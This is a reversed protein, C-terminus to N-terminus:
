DVLKLIMGRSYSVVYLEGASDQGFASVLGTVGTGGVDTTHELPAFAVVEGGGVPATGISFLRGGLDAYFYRGRYLSELATGRYVYGGTISSGVAHSYEFIPEVLPTYAPATAPVGPTPHQGERIRWGYNRGGVGAPQHDIEEWNGQGVDGIFMAGSGGLAPPDFSFKWPNRVGFAWIEPLAAIPLSDVFPNDVPVVYGEQDADSVEVDIRLMKGLLSIPNQGHNQPDNGSGGDGSAIYLYGDPGFALHGGNHNSFPHFIYRQGTPGGWRLDFRSAADALLPSGVSRKFRAVVPHGDPNTFYVFFNRTTAYSPAFALGLLGREGGTSISTSINLFPTPLLVGNQIVRITGGQEVVYQLSPTVPDQVFGVPLALGSVFSDLRLDGFPPAIIPGLSGSADLASVSGANRVWVQFLYSGSTAPIWNFTSTSSWDQGVSWTAGDFIFFKYTYPGLGGTAVATLTTPTGVVPSGAMTLSALLSASTGITVPGVTTYSDYPNSSGANRVWMQFLYTGAAPPIWTWTSSPSWDQGVAWTAGNYVFFKYTYPGTGGRALGTWTVPTGAPVPFTRNAALSTVTLPAPATVNYPGVQLYADAAASSGANRAWVQFYYTGQTSPTWSFSNAASWDQGVTWTTGNFVFFKFTYPGSGGSAAATWNVPSGAPIPFSQNAVLSTVALPPPGNITYPSAERWADFPASSGSNRAWVQVSYTGGATPTWTWTNSPGWDRGLSWTSGNFIWFLYTYPATGGSASVTWTVATNIAAPGSPNATLATVTLPPPGTITVPGADRYADYPASSGANRVWVQFQYTGPVSPTWIWTNSSSWDQGVTWTAGDYVFFKYTYPTTGSTASATWTVPTGIVVPFTVNATLSTVSLASQRFNAVTLATNNLALREDADCPPNFPNSVGCATSTGPLVGMSAGNYSLAPNSFYTLRTCSGGLAVCKDNYSMITRWRTPSTSGFNVHGHAYSYPTTANDMYWDHRLGMNHGLEHAFSLNGVACVQEVVNFGLSQFGSSVSTMVWAVGCFPSGPTSTMLTVLDARHTNRLAAVGSLTGSGNTVNQLDTSINGSEVYAVEAAHTLRLRQTVNSNAYATNTVSIANAILANIASTGGAATRASPTYLVMIDVFSADDGQPVDTADLTDPIGVTGPLADMALPEAEPPFANQDVEDIVHLGNGVYRVVYSADPTMVVGHMVGGDTALSVTSMPIAPIHGSWVFGRATADIRNLAATFSVDAFLNLELSTNRDASVGQSGLQTFDITVVRSRGVTRDPAAGQLVSVSAAADPQSFLGPSQAVLISEGSLCAGVILVTVLSKRKAPDL